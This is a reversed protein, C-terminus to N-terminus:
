LEGPDSTSKPESDSGSPIQIIPVGKLLLNKLEFIFNFYLVM